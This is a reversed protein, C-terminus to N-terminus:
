ESFIGCYTKRGLEILKEKNLDKEPYKELKVVREFSSNQISEDFYAHFSKVANLKRFSESSLVGKFDHISQFSSKSTSRNLLCYQSGRLGEEQMHHCYEKVSKLQTYEESLVFFFDHNEESLIEQFHESSLKLHHALPKLLLLFEFLETLLNAGFAKKLISNANFINKSLFSVGRQFTSKSFIKELFEFNKQSFFEALRKASQFFHVSQQAPPTDIVIHDYKKEKFLQVLLQITLYDEVGSLENELFSFIRHEKIEEIKDESDLYKQLIQQFANKKDIWLIDLLADESEQVTSVFESSKQIKLLEALRRAPDVTLVLVKKNLQFLQLAYAASLTTKGVGGSGLFFSLKTM